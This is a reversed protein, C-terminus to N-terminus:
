VHGGCEDRVNNKAELDAGKEVLVKVCALHGYMAALMLATSGDQFMTVDYSLFPPFPPPPLFSPLPPPTLHTPYPHSPITMFPNHILPYSEVSIM